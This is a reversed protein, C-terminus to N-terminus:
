KQRLLLFLDPLLSHTANQELRRKPGLLMGVFTIFPCNRELYVLLRSHFADM